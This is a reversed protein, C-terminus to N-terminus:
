FWSAGPRIKQLVTDRAVRGSTMSRYAKSCVPFYISVKPKLQVRGHASCGHFARSLFDSTKSPARDYSYSDTLPAGWCPFFRMQGGLYAVRFIPNSFFLIFNRRNQTLFFFFFLWFSSGRSRPMAHADISSVALRLDERRILLRMTPARMYYYCLSHM